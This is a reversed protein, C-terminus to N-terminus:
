GGQTLSFTVVAHFIGDEVELLAPGGNLWCRWGSNLAVPVGTVVAHRLAEVQMYSTGFIDVQHTYEVAVAPSNYGREGDDHSVTWHVVYPARMGRWEGRVRINDTDVMGSLASTLADQVVSSLSAM